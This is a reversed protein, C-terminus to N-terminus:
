PRTLLLLTGLILTAGPNADRAIARDDRRISMALFGEDVAIGLTASFPSNRTLGPAAHATKYHSPALRALPKAPM